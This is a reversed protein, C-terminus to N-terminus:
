GRRGAWARLRGLLWPGLQPRFNQQWTQAEVAPDTVVQAPHALPFSLSEAAQMLEPRAALTHTAAADFGINQVLNKAPIVCLGGQMWCALSWQYDWTDVLGRYVKDLKLSWYVAEM